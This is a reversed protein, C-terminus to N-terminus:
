TLLLIESELFKDFSSNVQYGGRNLSIFREFILGFKIPDVDTIGLLYCVLSGASSGRGAGVLMKKKCHEILDAVIFFYNEFEKNEIVEIEYHLRDRYEANNSIDLGRDLAGKLCHDLLSGEVYPSPLEARTFSFSEIKSAIDYTNQIATKKEEESLFYVEEKWENATLLHRNFNSNQFSNVKDNVNGLMTEYAELDTVKNFLNDSIAVFPLSVNCLDGENTLPSIGYYTNARNNLYKQVKSNEIIVVVDNEDISSLDSFSLRNVYYKQVTSKSTLNYIDKLGKKNIALLTVNFLPQKVKLKADGVFSLQVGLIPKINYKKCLNWFPIHGFTNGEDTISLYPENCNEIIKPLKGFARRFSYESRVKLNIM